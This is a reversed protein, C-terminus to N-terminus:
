AAGGSNPPVRRRIRTTLVGRQSSVVEEDGRPAGRHVMWVPDLETPGAEVIDQVPPTLLFLTVQHASAGLGVEVRDVGSLWLADIALPQARPLGTAPDFLSLRVAQALGDRLIPEVPQQDPWWGSFWDQELHQVTAPPALGLHSALSALGQGHPDELVTLLGQLQSPGLGAALDDIARLLPGKGLFRKSEHTPM